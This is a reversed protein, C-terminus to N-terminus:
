FSIMRPELSRISGLGCPMVKETIGPLVDKFIRKLREEQVKCGLMLVHIHTSSVTSDASHEFVAMRTCMKAWAKIAPEAVDFSTTIRPAFSYSVPSGSVDM